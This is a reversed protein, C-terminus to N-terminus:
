SVIAARATENRILVWCTTRITTSGPSWSSWTRTNDVTLNFHVPSSM